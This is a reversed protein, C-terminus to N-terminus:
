SGATPKTRLAGRLGLMMLMLLVLGAPGGTTGCNCGVPSQFDGDEPGGDAGGGDPVGADPVGADPVGADPVGADPVGADPTSPCTTPIPPIPNPGGDPLTIFVGDTSATTELRESNRVRVTVFYWNGPPVTTLDVSSRDGLAVFNSINTCGPGTGVAVEYGTIDSDLEQFVWSAQLPEDHARQDRDDGLGDDLKLLRPPTLDKARLSYVFMDLGGNYLTDFGADPGQLQLADQSATVGGIILDNSDSFALARVEDANGGGVFTGWEPEYNTGNPVLRLVYGDEGQNTMDFGGGIPLTSSTTKGGIFISQRTGQAIAWGEDEGPGGLVASFDPGGGTPPFSTLFANRGAPPQSIQPVTPFNQSGTSGVVLVRGPAPTPAFLVKYGEDKGQGGILVSWDPANLQPNLGQVVVQRNTLSAQQAQPSSNPFNPSETYGTVFLGIGGDPLMGSTIGFGVDENHGGRLLTKELVGADSFRSIFMDKGGDTGGTTGPMSPSTTYGVAYLKGDPGLTLGNILEDGTGGVYHFSLLPSGTNGIRAVFGDKNGQYTTASQRQLNPSVTGGAIHIDNNAGIVVASGVDDELGGLVTLWRINGQVGFRSIVVDADGGSELKAGPPIHAMAVTNTTSDGSSGVVFFEDRTSVNGRIVDIGDLTEDGSGGIFTNWQIVPDVWAPRGPEKVDVEILYQWRGDKTARVERYRCPVEYSTGDQREQGCLLGEERLHGDALQVELARGGEAVRLAKAGRWELWVRALQGGRAARLSYGVGSERSELWLDVGAAAEPYYLAGWTPLGQQIINHPGPRAGRAPMTLENFLAERPQLPQPVVPQAGVLGWGLERSPGKEPALRMLLGTDSFYANARPQHQFYRGPAKVPAPAIVVRQSVPRPPGPPEPPAARTPSPSAALSVAVLGATLASLVGSFVPKEM